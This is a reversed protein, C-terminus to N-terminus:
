MYMCNITVSVYSQCVDERESAQETSLLLSLLLESSGSGATIPAIAPTRPIM